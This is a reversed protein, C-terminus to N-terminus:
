IKGPMQQEAPVEPMQSDASESKQEFYAKQEVIDYQNKLKNIEENFMEVMRDNNLRNRADDRAQEFPYYKPAEKSSVQVVWYKKDVPFMDVTNDKMALIKKRLGEEVHAAQDHVHGFNRAMLKEDRALKDLDAKPQKAKELFAKAAAQNDFSVGTANVGGQSLLYLTAKNEEYFKKVDADSIMVPHEAQFYKIALGRKAEELFAEKDAQYESKSEIANKEAWHELVKQSVLTSYVNEKLDPMMAAFSRLQPQQDLIRDYYKEFEQVTIAQKGDITLLVDQAHSSMGSSMVATRSGSFKNRIWDLPKCSPLILLITLMSLPFLSSSRKM